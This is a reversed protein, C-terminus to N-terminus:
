GTAIVDGAAIGSMSKSLEESAQPRIEAITSQAANAAVEGEFETMVSFNLERTRLMEM